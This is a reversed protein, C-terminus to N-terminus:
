IDMKLTGMGSLDLIVTVHGPPNPVPGCAAVAADLIYCCFRELEDLFRTWANHKKVQIMLVAQGDKDCGSVSAKGSALENSIESPHISGGPVMDVRWKAHKIICRAAHGADWNRVCLWRRLCTDTTM